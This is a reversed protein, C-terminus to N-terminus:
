AGRRRIFAPIDLNHKFEPDNRKDAWDPFFPGEEPVSESSYNPNTHVSLGELPEERSEELPKEETASIPMFAPKWTDSQFEEKSETEPSSNFETEEVGPHNESSGTSESYTWGPDADSNSTRFEPVEESVSPTDDRFEM